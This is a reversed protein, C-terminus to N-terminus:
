PYDIGAITYWVGLFFFTDWVYWQRGLLVHFKSWDESLLMFDDVCDLNSLKLDLCVDTSSNDYSLLAIKMIM